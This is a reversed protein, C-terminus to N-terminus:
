PGIIRKGNIRDLTKLFRPKRANTQRLLSVYSDWEEKRGKEQMLRGLESLHDVGEAYSHTNTEAIESEIINKWLHFPM